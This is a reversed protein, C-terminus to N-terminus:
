LYYFPPDDTRHRMFFKVKIRSFCCLLIYQGVNLISSSMMCLKYFMFINAKLNVECIAM